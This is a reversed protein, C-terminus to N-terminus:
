MQLYKQFLPVQFSLKDLSDSSKGSVEEQKLIEKRLLLTVTARDQRTPKEGDLLRNLLNEEEETLRSWQERFYQDGRVLVVPIIAKVDELSARTTGRPRNEKRIKENLREVLEFCVLQVLYPQCHTINIIEDVAQDEYITTSFDDVPQLILEQAESEELFTMRIARTNILYDSWNWDDYENNTNKNKKQKKRQDTLDSLEHSGSFLLTWAPMHQIVNRLFNLPTKSGTVEIVESLREYEDLCLLFKKNPFVREIQQLWDQLALFPEIELKKQNPEPLHLRRPLRKASAIIQKAIQQALGSLTTAAAAGQIDVLLPILNAGVRRPLYKLASTKGTRRGGYLLLAPPPDLLALTEIERFLMNRGKFREEAKDPDLASGPIYVQRIEESDITEKKLEALKVEMLGLWKKAITGYTAALPPNSHKNGNALKNTVDQLERICDKLIQYARYRSSAKVVSNINQSVDLLSPVLWNQEKSIPSPIWDLQNAVEAIDNITECKKISSLAIKGIADTAIKQQNTSNILYDITERAIAQNQLYATAIMQAMFPLPIIIRQDFRVPLYLLLSAADTRLSILFLVSIWIVEVLWLIAPVLLFLIGICEVLKPDSDVGWGVGFLVGLVLGLVVGSTTSSAVISGVQWALRWKILSLVIVFIIGLVLILAIGLIMGWGIGWAVGWAVGLATGWGIVQVQSPVLYHALILMALVFVFLGKFWTELRKNDTRALALGMWWGIFFLLSLIWNFNDFALQIFFGIVLVVLIPVIATIWWVQEAYKKLPPNNAFDIQYKFPNDTPKLQPHIQILWNQFSYPQFYSRYLISACESLHTQLNSILINQNM